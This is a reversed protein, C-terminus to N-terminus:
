GPMGDADRDGIPGCRAAQRTEDEIRELVRDWLQDGHEAWLERLQLYLAPASYMVARLVPQRAARAQLADGGPVQTLAILLVSALLWGVAAGTLAGGWRDLWGLVTLRLTRAVLWGVLRSLLLGALVLLVFAIVLSPEEDLGSAESLRPAALSAFRAALVISLVLGALEIVRRVLGSRYGMVAFVVVIAVVALLPLM